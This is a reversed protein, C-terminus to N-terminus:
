KIKDLADKISRLAGIVKYGNEAAQECENFYKLHDNWARIVYIPAKEEKLFNDIDFIDDTESM